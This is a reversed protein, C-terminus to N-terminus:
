EKGKKKKKIISRDRYDVSKGVRREESRLVVSQGSDITPNSPTIDGAVLGRNVTLLDTASSQTAHTFASDTVTYCYYTSSTPSVVQVPSTGLATADSSCTASTGSYWQYTYPTTGGSPTAKLVVSQGSDITPAAPTVAGPILASNVNVLDGTSCKSEPSNASDSVRYSYTTAVSPSAIYTPSDAGSISNTCTGDLYWHYSYPQTGGIRSLLHEEQPM